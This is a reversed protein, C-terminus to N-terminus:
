RDLLYEQLLQTLPIAPIFQHDTFGVIRGDDIFPQVGALAPDDNELGELRPIAVQEESYREMVEPQMLFDIFRKAEEPHASEAGATLM